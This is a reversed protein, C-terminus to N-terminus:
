ELKDWHGVTANSGSLYVPRGAAMEQYVIRDWEEDTSVDAYTVFRAQSCGFYNVFAQHADSSQAGSSSSTYDMKAGVGCYLMLNAVATRQLDNASGYTDKMNDWDFTIVPLPDSTDVYESM